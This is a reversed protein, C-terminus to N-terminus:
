RWAAGSSALLYREPVAGLQTGPVGEGQFAGPIGSFLCYGTLGSWTLSPWHGMQNVSQSRALGLRPDVRAKTM